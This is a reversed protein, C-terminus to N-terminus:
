VRRFRVLNEASPLTNVLHDLTGEIPVPLLVMMGRTARINTPRGRADHLTVLSQVPRLLQILALEIWNLTDLAPLREDIGM